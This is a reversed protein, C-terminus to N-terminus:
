SVGEFALWFEGFGFDAPHKRVRPRIKERDIIRFDGGILIHLSFVPLRYMNMFPTCATLQNSVSCYLSYQHVENWCKLTGTNRSISDGLSCFLIIFVGEGCVFNQIFICTCKKYRDIDLCDEFRFWM